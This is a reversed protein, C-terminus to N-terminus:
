RCIGRRSPAELFRLLRQIEIVDGLEERVRAQALEARLKSHFLVHFAHKIKRQTEKSIGRRNLGVSNLGVLRARDHAVIAFPPADKAIKANAAAMVSEGIRCHQHVGTYAGLVTYDEVSVHGALGVTNALICHSGIESDHGVHSGIMLLNDDGVQTCGGGLASGANITAQERIVNDEGIVLRGPEERSGKIQGEGGICAFPSIRTRAGVTTRGTVVAHPGIAVDDGLEVGPGIVAFPGVEVGSGLKAQPDVIASKHVNTERPSM